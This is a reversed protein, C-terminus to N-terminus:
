PQPSGSRQDRKTSLHRLRASFVTWSTGVMILGIEWLLLPGLVQPRHAQPVGLFGLSQIEVYIMALASPITSLLSFRGRILRRPSIVTVTSLAIAVFFVPVIAAVTAVLLDTPLPNQWAFPNLM